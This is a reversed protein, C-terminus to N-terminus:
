EVQIELKRPHPVFRCLCDEVMCEWADAADCLPRPTAMEGGIAANKVPLTPPLLPPVLSLALAHSEERRSCWVRVDNKGSLMAADRFVAVPPMGQLLEQHPGWQCCPATVVGLIEECDIQDIVQDITCHCHVMLIVARRVRIRVQEVRLPIVTLRDVIEWEHRWTARLAGDDEVLDKPTGVVTSREALLPDIAYCHGGKTLHAFLAATRPTAGDGVCIFADEPGLEGIPVRMLRRYASRTTKKERMLVHALSAARLHQLLFISNTSAFM